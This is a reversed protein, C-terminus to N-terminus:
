TNIAANINSLKGKKAKQNMMFTIRSIKKIAVEYPANKVKMYNWGAYKMLFRFQKKSLFRKSTEFGEISDYPDTYDINQSNCDECLPSNPEFSMNDQGIANLDRGCRTCILKSM